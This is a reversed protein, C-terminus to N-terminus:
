EFAYLHFRFLKQRSPLDQEIFRAVRNRDPTNQLFPQIYQVPEVFQADTVNGAERNKGGHLYGVSGHPCDVLCVRSLGQGGSFVSPELSFFWPNGPFFKALLRM